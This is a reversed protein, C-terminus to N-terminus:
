EDDVLEGMAAARLRAIYTEEEQPSLQAELEERDEEVSRVSRELKLLHKSKPKTSQKESKGKM